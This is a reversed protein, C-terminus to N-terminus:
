KQVSLIAAGYAKLPIALIGHDSQIASANRAPGITPRSAPNTDKASTLSAQSPNLWDLFRRNGDGGVPIEVTNEQPSRNLLIYVTQDKLDRAFAYASRSDDIKVAHFFGTSLAPLM